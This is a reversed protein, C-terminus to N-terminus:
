LIAPIAREIDLSAVILPVPGDGAAKWADPIADTAGLRRAQRKIHAIVMARDGEAVRGIASVANTLDSTNEIPYRGDVIDGADNKVPIAWGKKALAVRQETTFSREIGGADAKLTASAPTPDGITATGDDAVTYPVWFIADDQEGGRVQYAARDGLTAVLCAWPANPGEGPYRVRLADTIASQIAEFSGPVDIDIYAKGGADKTGLTHTAAVAGQLVPSAEHVWMDTLEDVGDDAKTATGSWRYSWQPIRRGKVQRYAQLATPNDAIDFAMSLALGPEGKLGVGAPDAKTVEGIYLWPDRIEHQWVVPTKVSGDNVAAAYAAFSEPGPVRQRYTDKVGYVSILAEVHGEDLGDDPGAKVQLVQAQKTGNM